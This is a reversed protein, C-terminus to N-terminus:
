AEPRSKGTLIWLRTAGAVAVPMVVFNVLPIMSALTAAAGFGLMLGRRSKALRRQEPFSVGCAAAPYDVYELALSWATIGFWLPPLLAATIGFPLMVLSMLGGLLILGLFYRLKTTEAIVDRWASALIGVDSDFRPRNGTIQAAVHEALLSNFPAGILNAILTFGYFVILLLLLAFLLWLLWALWDLWDPLIETMSELLAAFQSSAFWIALAFIATNLLLPIAVYRRMGPQNILSFGALFHQAGRGFGTPNM